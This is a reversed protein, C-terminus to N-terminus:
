VVCDGVDALLLTWRHSWAGASDKGVCRWVQSDLIGDRVDDRVVDLVVDLVDELVDDLVNDCV